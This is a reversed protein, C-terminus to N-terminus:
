VHRGGRATQGELRSGLLKRYSASTGVAGKVGKGKLFERRLTEILKIDLVIDQAYDALRYGM